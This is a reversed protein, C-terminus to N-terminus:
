PYYIPNQTEIKKIFYYKLKENVRYSLVAASNNNNIPTKGTKNNYLVSTRLTITDGKFYEIPANSVFKQEKSVFIKNSRNGVWLSDFVIKQKTKIIIKFYFETGTGGRATGAIWSSSTANLLKFHKNKCLNVNQNIMTFSLLFCCIFVLMYLRYKM